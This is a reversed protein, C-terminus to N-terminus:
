CQVNFLSISAREWSSLYSFSHLPYFRPYFIGRLRLDNATTAPIFFRIVMCFRCFDFALFKFLFYLYIFSSAWHTKFRYTLVNLCVMYDCSACSRTASVFSYKKFLLFPNVIYVLLNFSQLSNVHNGFIYIVNIVKCM